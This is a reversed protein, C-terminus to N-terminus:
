RSARKDAEEMAAAWGDRWGHGYARAEEHSSKFVDFETDHRGSDDSM